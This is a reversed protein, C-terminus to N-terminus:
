SYNNKSKTKLSQIKSVDAYSVSIGAHTPSLDREVVVTESLGANKLSQLVFERNSTPIGSGVNYFEGTEGKDNVLLIMEAIASSDLYDRV